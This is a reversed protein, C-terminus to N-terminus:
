MVKCQMANCQMVNCVYMCVYDYMFMCVYTYYIYIYIVTGKGRLCNVVTLDIKGLSLHDIRDIQELFCSQNSHGLRHWTSNELRSPIVPVFSSFRHAGLIPASPTSSFPPQAPNNPPVMALCKKGTIQSTTVLQFPEYACVHGPFVQCRSDHLIRWFDQRDRRGARTAHSSDICSINVVHGNRVPCLTEQHTQPHTRGVFSRAAM